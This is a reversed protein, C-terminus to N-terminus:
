APSRSRSGVVSEVKGQRQEVAGRAARPRALHGDAALIRPPRWLMDNASVHFAIDGTWGYKVNRLLAFAIVFAFITLCFYASLRPWDAARQLTQRTGGARQHIDAQDIAQPSQQLGGGLINRVGPLFSM